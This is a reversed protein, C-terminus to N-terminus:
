RHGVAASIGGTVMAWRSVGEGSVGRPALPSPSPLVMLTPAATALATDSASPTSAVTSGSEGERTHSNIQWACAARSLTWAPRASCTSTPEHLRRREVIDPDVREVFRKLDKRIRVQVRLHQGSPLAQDRHHVHAQGRGFRQEIHVTKGLQPGDLGVCAVPGEPRSTRLQAGSWGAGCAGPALRQPNAREDPLTLQLAFDRHVHTGPEDVRRERVNAM